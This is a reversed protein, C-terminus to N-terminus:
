AQMNGRSQPPNTGLNVVKPVTFGVMGILFSLIGSAIYWIHPQLYDFVQGAVILSVPSIITSVSDLLTLVRGQMAPEVTKQVLSQIPAMCVPMMFGGLFMGGVAMWFTSPPAFGTALLAVALGLIGTLSTQMPPRCGPWISVAMGGCIMGTGIAAGVIGFEQVSGGFRQTVLISTLMFAPTALFNIFMSISLMEVAGCWHWVYRLGIYVDNWLSAWGNGQPNEDASHIPEPISLFLLVTIALLAGGIDMGIIAHMPLTQVMAAGLIPSIVRLIGQLMQNLGAIRTIHENPVMLSTSALLAPTQFSKACACIFIILFIAGTSAMGLLFLLGLCAMSLIIVLHSIILIIRRNWRDVLAGMFPGFLVRPLLAMATAISVLSASQYNNTLWWILAFQVTESTFMALAQGSWITFFHGPWYSPYQRSSIKTAM